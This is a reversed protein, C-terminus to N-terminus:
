SPILFEKGDVREILDRDHDRAGLQDTTPLYHGDPGVISKWPDCAEGNGLRHYKVTYFIYNKTKNNIETIEVIARDRTRYFEPLYLTRVVSGAM